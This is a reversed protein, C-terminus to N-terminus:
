RVHVGKMMMTIWNIQDRAAEMPGVGLKFGYRVYGMHHSGHMEVAQFQGYKISSTCEGTVSTHHSQLLM